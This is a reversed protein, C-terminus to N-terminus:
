RVVSLRALLSCTTMGFTVSCLKTATFVQSIYGPRIPALDLKIDLDTSTCVINVYRYRRM